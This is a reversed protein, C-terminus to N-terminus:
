LNNSHHGIHRTSPKIFHKKFVLKIKVNSHSLAISIKYIIGSKSLFCSEKIKPFDNNM